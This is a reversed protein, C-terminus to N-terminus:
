RDLGSSFPRRRLSRVVLRIFPLSYLRQALEEDCTIFHAGLPEALAVFAVSCVTGDRLRAIEM